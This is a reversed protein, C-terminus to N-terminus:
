GILIARIQFGTSAPHDVPPASKGAL